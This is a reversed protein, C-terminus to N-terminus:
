SIAWVKSKAIFSLSAVVTNWDTLTGCRYGAGYLNPANNRISEIGEYSVGQSITDTNTFYVNTVVSGSSDYIVDNVKTVTGSASVNDTDGNTEAYKILVITGVELKKSSVDDGFTFYVYDFNPSNNVTCYYTSPANYFYLNEVIEVQSLIVDNSDVIFIEVIDNDIKSSYLFIQENVDGKAVYTYQKPVGEKVPITTNGMASNYYTTFNTCYVNVSKSTNCFKTWKPIFVSNGQWVYTNNFTSSGSILINGSAGIKRHPTYGLLWSMGM